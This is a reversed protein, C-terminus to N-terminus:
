PVLPFGRRESRGIRDGSQHRQRGRMAVELMDRWRLRVAARPSKELNGFAGRLAPRCRERQAGGRSPEIGVELGSLLHANLLAMKGVEAIRVARYGRDAVAERGVDVVGIGFADHM